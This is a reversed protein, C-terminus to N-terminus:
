NERRRAAVVWSIGFALVIPMIGFICFGTLFGILEIGKSPFMLWGYTYTNVNLAIVFASIVWLVSVLLGLRRKFSLKSKTSTDNPSM